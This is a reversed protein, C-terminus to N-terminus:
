TRRRIVAFPFPRFGCGAKGPRMSRARARRSVRATWNNTTPRCPANNQYRGPHAALARCVEAQRQAGAWFRAVALGGFWSQVAGSAPDETATPRAAAMRAEAVIAGVMGSGPAM